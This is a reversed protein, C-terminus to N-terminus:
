YLIEDLLNGLYEGSQTYIDGSTFDFIVDPNNELTKDKLMHIAQRM